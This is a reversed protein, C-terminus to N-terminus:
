CVANRRKSMADAAMSMFGRLELFDYERKCYLIVAEAGETNGGEM